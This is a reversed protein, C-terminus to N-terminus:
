LNTPISVQVEAGIINDDDDMHVQGSLSTSKDTSNQFLNPLLEDSNRQITTQDGQSAATYSLDMDKNPLLAQLKEDLDDTKLPQEGTIPMNDLSSVASNLFSQTQAIWDEICPVKDNKQYLWGGLAVSAILFSLFIVKKV